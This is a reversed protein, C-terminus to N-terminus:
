RKARERLQVLEAEMQKMKAAMVAVVGALNYTKSGREGEVLDPAGAEIDDAIFGWDVSDPDDDHGSMKGYPAALHHEVSVPKWHFQVPNLHAFAANVAEADLPRVNSKMTVDSNLQVNRAFM